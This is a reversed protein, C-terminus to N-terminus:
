EPNHRDSDIHIALRHHPSVVTFRGDAHRAVATEEVTAGRLGGWSGAPSLRGPLKM